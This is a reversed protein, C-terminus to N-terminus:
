QRFLFDHLKGIGQIFKKPNTKKLREINQLKWKVSPYNGLDGACCKTWEPEGQEFSLFFERDTQSLNKNVNEILDLRAAMYDSYSFPLDSMGEFQNQLADSQDILQPQLYEFIPRDSGLLAFVPLWSWMWGTM